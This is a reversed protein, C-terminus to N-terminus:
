LAFPVSYDAIQEETMEVEKKAGIRRVELQFGGVPGLVRAEGPKLSEAVAAIQNHLSLRRMQIERFIQNDATPNPVNPVKADDFPIGLTTNVFRSETTGDEFTFDMEYGPNVWIQSKPKKARAGDNAPAQEREPFLAVNATSRSANVGM